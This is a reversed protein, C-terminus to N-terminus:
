GGQSRPASRRVAPRQGAGPGPAQRPPQTTGVNSGPRQGTSGQYAQTAGQIAGQTIAGPQPIPGFSPDWAPVAPQKQAQAMAAYDQQRGQDIRAAQQAQIANAQATLRDATAREPRSLPAVTQNGIAADIAGPTLQAGSPKTTPKPRRSPDTPPTYQGYTNYAM